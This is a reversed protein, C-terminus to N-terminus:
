YQLAGSEICDNEYSRNQTAREIEYLSITYTMKYRIFLKILEAFVKIVYELNVRFFDKM